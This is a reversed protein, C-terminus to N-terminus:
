PAPVKFSTPQGTPAQCSKIMTDYIEAAQNMDLTDLTLAGQKTYVIPTLKQNIDGGMDICGKTSIMSLGNGQDVSVVIGTVRPDDSAFSTCLQNKVTDAVQLVEFVNWKFTQSVVSCDKEQAIAPSAVLSAALAFNTLKM